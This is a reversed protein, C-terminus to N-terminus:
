ITEGREKRALLARAEAILRRKGAEWDNFSALLEGKQFVMCGGPAFAIGLEAERAEGPGNVVCGMVALKLSTKTEPLSQKVEEVISALDVRCRGCTPCSVVEVGERRLGIARLIGIAAEPEAAPDGTISVRVTDGIGSLLLAGLGASAKIVAEMGAGAETVGLHLPYDVKESLLRNAAVTTAVSSSKISIVIDYFGEKELLAVHSLASEVLAEPTPGGYQRLLEKQLSGGNVGIRIPVGHERAAAVLERVRDASGINGPNIRLKDVGNEVAAIALRHDFHIDAVLPIHIRRRIPGIAEACQMDYVSARVIQCGAQELRLIQEVTAEVDRTDTNTMSQVTVPAGGGIPVGGVLVTRTKKEM